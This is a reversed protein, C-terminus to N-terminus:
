GGLKERLEHIGKDTALLMELLEKILKRTPQTMFLEQMENRKLEVYAEM